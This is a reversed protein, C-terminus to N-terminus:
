KRDGFMIRVDGKMIKKPIEKLIFDVNYKRFTNMMEFDYVLVIGNDEDALICNKLELGNFRIKVEGLIGMKYASDLDIRM